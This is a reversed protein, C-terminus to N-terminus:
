QLLTVYYVMFSLPFTYDRVSYVANLLNGKFWRCRQKLFDKLTFPSQEEVVAEM